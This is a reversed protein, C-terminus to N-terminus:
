PGLLLKILIIESHNNQTYALRPALVLVLGERRAVVMLFNVLFTYTFSCFTLTLLVIKFHLILYFLSM